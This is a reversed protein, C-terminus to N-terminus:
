LKAQSRALTQEDYVLHAVQQIEELSLFRDTRNGKIAYLM